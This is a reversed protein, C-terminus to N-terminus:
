GEGETGTAVPRAPDACWQSWSGPYLRGMPLGALAFALMNHCATVGSGCYHVLTAADRGELLAEFRARLADPPLFRKDKGLNNMFFLNRAGPIHGAVPDVTEQEGRYRGPDRADMLVQADGGLGARVEELSCLLGEDPTGEFSAPQIHPPATDEPLGGARWAAMGGDMVAVARHGLLRLMFWLRSAFFGGADDYAVVQSGAHVGQAGLWQCFADWPPMPHRGSQATIPGCLDHEMDAFRAGPVHGEGYVRPGYGHDTLQHRCDFVVLDPHALRAAVEAPQILLDAPSSM